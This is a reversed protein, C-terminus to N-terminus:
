KTGGRTFITRLSKGRGRAGKGFHKKFTARGEARKKRAGIGKLGIGSAKERVL